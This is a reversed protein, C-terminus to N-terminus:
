PKKRQNSKQPHFQCPQLEGKLLLLEIELGKPTDLFFSRSPEDKEEGEGGSLPFPSSFFFVSNQKPNRSTAPPLEM